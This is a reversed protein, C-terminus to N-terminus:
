DAAVADFTLANGAAQDLRQAKRVHAPHQGTKVMRRWGERAIRAEALTLQGAARRAAAADPLEGAPAQCWSGGAFLNERGALRYRYRWFRAGSPAVELALGHADALRYSRDKPRANRIRTDTLM